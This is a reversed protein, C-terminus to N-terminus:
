TAGKQAWFVLWTVLLCWLLLEEDEPFNGLRPFMVGILLFLGVALVASICGSAWFNGGLDYDSNAM